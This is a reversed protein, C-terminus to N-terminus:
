VLPLGRFPFCPVLIFIFVMAANVAKVNARIEGTWAWVSGPDDNFTSLKFYLLHRDKARLSLKQFM